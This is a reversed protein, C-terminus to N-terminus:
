IEVLRIIGANQPMYESLVVLTLTAVLGLVTWFDVPWGEPRATM